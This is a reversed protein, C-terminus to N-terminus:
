DPAFPTAVHDGASLREVDEGVEGVEGAGDSLPVVPLDAGPYALEANAIALDRYNLSRARVRILAEGDDPTPRERDTQVVGEYDGTAESVEYARM